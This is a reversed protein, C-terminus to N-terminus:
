GRGELARQAGLLRGLREWARGTGHEEKRLVFVGGPRTLFRQFVPRGNTHDGGAGDQVQPAWVSDGSVVPSFSFIWTSAISAM